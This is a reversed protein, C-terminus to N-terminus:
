ERLFGPFVDMMTGLLIPSSYSIAGNNTKINTMASHFPNSTM